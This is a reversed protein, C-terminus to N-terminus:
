TNAEPVYGEITRIADLFARRATATAEDRARRAPAVRLALDMVRGELAARDEDYWGLTSTEDVCGSPYLPVCEVRVWTRTALPVADDLCLRRVVVERSDPGCFRTAGSRFVLASFITCM